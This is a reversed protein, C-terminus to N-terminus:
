YMEGRKIKRNLGGLYELATVAHYKETNLYELLKENFVETVARGTATELIIWTHKRM